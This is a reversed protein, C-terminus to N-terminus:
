PRQGGWLYTPLLCPKPPPCLPAPTLRDPSVHPSSSSPLRPPPLTIPVLSVAPHDGPYAGGALSHCRWAPVGGFGQM